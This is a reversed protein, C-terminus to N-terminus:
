SAPNQKLLAQNRLLRFELPVCNAQEVCCRGTDCPRTVLLPKTGNIGNVETEAAADRKVVALEKGRIRNKCSGGFPEGDQAPRLWGLHELYTTYDTNM